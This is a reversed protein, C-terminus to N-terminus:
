SNLIYPSFPRVCEPIDNGACFIHNLLVAKIDKLLVDGKLTM